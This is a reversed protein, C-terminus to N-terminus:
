GDWRDEPRTIERFGQMQLVSDRPLALVHLRMAGGFVDDPRRAHNGPNFLPGGHWWLRYGLSQVLAILAASREARENRLFLVPKLRRITERAGKLLEAEQGAADAKILRLQPLKLADLAVV